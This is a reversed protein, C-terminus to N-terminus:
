PTAILEDWSRADFINEALRELRAVDQISRLAAEVETPCDGFRKRGLRMLVSKAEALAGREIGKEIGRELILQYTSSDELTM